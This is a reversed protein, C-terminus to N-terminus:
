TFLYIISIDQFSMVQLFLRDVKMIEKNFTGKFIFGIFYWPM